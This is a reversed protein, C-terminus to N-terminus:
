YVSSSVEYAYNQAVLRCKFLVGIYARELEEVFRSGFVHTHDPVSYMTVRVSTGDKVLGMLESKRSETFSKQLKLPLKTLNSSHFTGTKTLDELDTLVPPPRFAEKGQLDNEPQDDSITVMTAM